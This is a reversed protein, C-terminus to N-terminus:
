PEDASPRARPARKTTWAAYQADSLLARAAAEAKARHEEMQTKVEDPRLPPGGPGPRLREMTAIGGTRETELVASLSARQDDTLGVEAELEDLMAEAADAFRALREDRHEKASPPETSPTPPPEDEGSSRTTKSTGAAPTTAEAPDAGSRAFLVGVALAALALLGLVLPLAPGRRAPAPRSVAPPASPASARPPGPPRPPIPAPHAAAVPPVPSPSPAPAPAPSATDGVAAGAVPASSSAPAALPPAPEVPSPAAPAAPPSPAAPPPDARVAAAQPASPTPEVVVVPTPVPGRSAEERPAAGEAIWARVADEAFPDALLRALRAADPRADPREAVCAALVVALDGPAGALLAVLRDLRDDGGVPVRGSPGALAGALLQGLNRVDDAQAHKPGARVTLQTPEGRADRRLGAWTPDAPRQPPHAAHAAALRRALLAGLGRVLTPALPGDLAPLPTAEASPLRVGPQTHDEGSWDDASPGSRAARLWADLARDGRQGALVALTGAVDAMPPRETADWALCARLLEVLAPAADPLEVLLNAVEADHMAFGAGIPPPAAGKHAHLLVSALGYVDAAPGLEGELREPAAGLPLLPLGDADEGIPSVVAQETGNGLARPEGRGSLYVAGIEMRGHVRGAAHLDALAQALRRGIECVAQPPPVRAALLPALPEADGLAYVSARAGDVRVVAIPTPLVGAEALSPATAAPPLEVVAVRAGDRADALTVRAGGLDPLRQRAAFAPRPRPTPDPM